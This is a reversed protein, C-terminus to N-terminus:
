ANPKARRASADARGFRACDEAMAAAAEHAIADVKARYTIKARHIRFRGEYAWRGGLQCVLPATPTPPSVRVRLQRLLAGCDNKVLRVPRRCLDVASQAGQELWANVEDLNM